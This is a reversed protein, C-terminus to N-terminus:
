NKLLMYNTMVHYFKTLVDLYNECGKIYNMVFIHEFEGRNYLLISESLENNDYLYIRNLHDKDYYEIQVHWPSYACDYFGRKICLRTESYWDRGYDLIIHGSRDFCSIINSFQARARRIEAVTSM